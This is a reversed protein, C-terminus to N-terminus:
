LDESDLFEVLQYQPTQMTLRTLRILREKGSADRMCFERLRTFMRGTVVLLPGRGLRPQPPLLLAPMFTDGSHTITPVIEMPEMETSLREVGFELALGNDRIMFWRIIGLTGGHTDKEGRCLVLEGVRIIQGQTDGHFLWGNASANLQRIPVPTTGPRRGAAPPRTPSWNSDRLLQCVWPLQTQIWMRENTDIRVQRRRNPQTWDFLLVRLWDMENNFSTGSREMSNLRHQLEEMIMRVDIVRWSGSKDPPTRLFRPPADTGLEFHFAGNVPSDEDPPGFKVWSERALVINRMWDFTTFNLRDAPLMALLLIQRYMSALSTREKSLKDQWGMDLILQYLEHSARWVGEPIYVHYQAAWNILQRACLLATSALEIRTQERELLGRKVLRAALCLRFGTFLAELLAVVLAAALRGRRNSVVEPQELELRLPMLIREFAMLYMEMLRQRVSVDLPIRNTKQLADVVAEACEVSQVLPLSDLWKAVSDPHTDVASPDQDLPPFTLSLPTLAVDLLRTM